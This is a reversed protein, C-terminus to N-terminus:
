LDGVFTGLEPLTVTVAMECAFVLTEADAETVMVLAVVVVGGGAATVTETEGVVALTVVPDDCSKEAVTFFAVLVATVHCTFPTVPPLM